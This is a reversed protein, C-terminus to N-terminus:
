VTRKEEFAPCLLATTASLMFGVRKSLDGSTSPKTETIKGFDTGEALFVEAGATGGTLGDIVAWPAWKFLAGNAPSELCVGVADIATGVTALALKVGSSYGFLAGRFIGAEGATLTMDTAMGDAERARQLAQNQRYGVPWGGHALINHTGSDAFAM